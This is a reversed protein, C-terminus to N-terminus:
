IRTKKCQKLRKQFIVVNKKEQWLPASCLSSLLLSFHIENKASSHALVELMVISDFYDTLRNWYWEVRTDYFNKKSDAVTKHVFGNLLIEIRKYTKITAQEEKRHKVHKRGNFYINKYQLLHACSFHRLFLFM